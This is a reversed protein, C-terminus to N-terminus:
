ASGASSVPKVAVIGREALHTGPASLALDERSPAIPTSRDRRTEHSPLGGAGPVKVAFRLRMDTVSYTGFHM